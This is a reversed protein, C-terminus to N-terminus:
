EERMRELLRRAEPGQLRERIARLVDAAARLDAEPRHIGLAELLEAERQTMEDVLAKGRPTLRVLPSRRHAPNEVLEVLGQDRLRNVLAQRDQRSVARRRALQPVTQPGFRDLDRLLGRVAGTVPGQGHVRAVVARLVLYLAVVEELLALVLAADSWAASAGPPNTSSTTLDGTMSAESWAAPEWGAM